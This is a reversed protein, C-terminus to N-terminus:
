ARSLHQHPVQRTGQGHGEHRASQSHPHQARRHAHGAARLHHLRLRSLAAPRLRHHVPRHAAQAQPRAADVGRLGAPEGRDHSAAPHRGQGRGHHRRYIAAGGRRRPRPRTARLGDLPRRRDRRQVQFPRAPHLGSDDQAPHAGRLERDPGQSIGAPRGDLGRRCAQGGDQRRGRPAGAGPHQRFEGARDRSRRRFGRASARARARHLASQRQRRHLGGAARGGGRRSVAARQADHDGGARRAEPGPGAALRRAGALAHRGRRLHHGQGHLCLGEPRSVQRLEGRAAGRRQSLGVSRHGVARRASLEQALVSGHGRGLCAKADTYDHGVKFAEVHNGAARSRALARQDLREAASAIRVRDFGAAGDDLVLDGDVPRRQGAAVRQREGFEHQRQSNRECRM